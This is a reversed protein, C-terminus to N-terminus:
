SFVSESGFSRSDAEFSSSYQMSSSSADMGSMDYRVSWSVLWDQPENEIGDNFDGRFLVPWIVNRVAFNVSM